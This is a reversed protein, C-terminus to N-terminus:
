GRLVGRMRSMRGELKGIFASSNQVEEQRNLLGRFANPDAGFQVGQIATSEANEPRLYQLASQYYRQIHTAADVGDPLDKFISAYRDTNEIKKKVYTQFDLKQEPNKVIEEVYAKAMSRADKPKDLLMGQWMGTIGDALEDVDFQARIEEATPRRPGGGGGGRGRGGGGKPRGGGLGQLRSDRASFWQLGMEFLVQFGDPSAFFAQQRAPDMGLPSSQTVSDLYSLVNPMQSQIWAGYTRPDEGLSDVYALIQDPLYGYIMEQWALPDGYEENYFEDNAGGQQYESGEEDGGGFVGGMTFSGGTTPQGSMSGGDPARGGRGRSSSPPM